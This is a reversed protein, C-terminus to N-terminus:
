VLFFLYFWFQAIWLLIGKKDKIKEREYYCM